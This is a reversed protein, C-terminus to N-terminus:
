WIITLGGAPTFVMGSFDATEELVTPKFMLRYVGLELSVFVYKWGLQTGVSSGVYWAGTGEIYQSPSQDRIEQPVRDALFGPLKDSTSIRSHMVRPAVYGRFWDGYHYSIITQLDFDHRGIDTLTVWEVVSSVISTHYGYGFSTAIAWAEDTSEWLQLKVDPKIVNGDYRLGFDIGELVRDTVGIRFQAEFTFGPQFLLWALAAEIYTRFTDVTVEENEPTDQIQDYAEKGADFTRGVVNTTATAYGGGTIQVSGPELAKATTLNTLTTTCGSLCIALTALLLFPTLRTM